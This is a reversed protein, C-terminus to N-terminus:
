FLTPHNEKLESLVKDMIAERYLAAKARVSFKQCYQEIAEMEKSNLYIVQRRNRRLADKQRDLFDPAVGTMQRRKKM